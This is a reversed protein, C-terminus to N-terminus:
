VQTITLRRGEVYELWITALLLPKYVRKNSHVLEHHERCLCILNHEQHDRGESKYCIHHVHHATQTCFRCRARDRALVRARVVTPVNIEDLRRGAGPARRAPEKLSREPRDEGRRSYTAACQDSCVRALGLQRHAPQPRYERCGACRYTSNVEVVAM